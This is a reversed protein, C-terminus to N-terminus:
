SLRPKLSAAARLSFIVIHFIKLCCLQSTCAYIEQFSILMAYLESCIVCKSVTQFVSM